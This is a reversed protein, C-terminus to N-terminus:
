EETKKTDKLSERKLKQATTEKADSRKAHKKKELLRVLTESGEYIEGPVYRKNTEHELAVFKVRKSFDVGKYSVKPTGVAIKKEDTSDATGKKGSGKKTEEAM